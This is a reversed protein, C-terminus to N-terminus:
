ACLLGVACCGKAVIGAPTNRSFRASTSLANEVHTYDSSCTSMPEFHKKRRTQLHRPFVLSPRTCSSGLRAASSQGTRTTNAVTSQHDCNHIYVYKATANGLKPAIAHGTLLAQSDASSRSQQQGDHIISGANPLHAKYPGLFLFSLAVFVLLALIAFRSRPGSTRIM